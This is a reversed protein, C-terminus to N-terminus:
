ARTGAPFQDTCSAEVSFLKRYGQPTQDTCRRFHTRLNVATGLGVEQAINEITMDTAELLEKTRRIRAQTLWIGPPMGHESHFRREFTRTSMHVRAALTATTHPQDLHEVIWAVLAATSVGSAGGASAEIYQAQGGERLPAVICARAVQNAVRSGHDRRIIHLCLDIGAAVGASTLVNGDDVYLESAKMTTTPHLQTFSATHRWHTTAPRRHLLGLSGLLFAGTCISAVRLGPRPRTGALIHQELNRALNGAIEPDLLVDSSAVIILDADNLEALTGDLSITLGEQTRLQQSGDAAVIRVEYLARGDPGRAAGFLRSATGLEFLPSEPAALTVIRLMASNNCM